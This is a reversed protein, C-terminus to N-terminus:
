REQKGFGMTSKVMQMHWRVRVMVYIRTGIEQIREKLVFLLEKGMDSNMIFGIQGKVKSHRWLGDYKDGNGCMLIGSGHLKDHKLRGIYVDGNKWSLKGKIENAFQVIRKGKEKNWTELNWSIYV